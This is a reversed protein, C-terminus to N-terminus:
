GAYLPAVFNAYGNFPLTRRVDFSGLMRETAQSWRPHPMAPNVNSQFPYEHPALDNWFTRPQQEVLEIRVVSKASKYGYKWPTVIRIPAGHQKPLPHGYIGTAVFALENFAEEIRLAEYYPWPYWSQAKIGPMQQPDAFSIFRVYRANGKPEARELLRALAFGSWPVAMAWAEVCRHRYLREELPMSRLLDDLSLTMPKSVLGTIEISWPDPHFAGTHRWVDKESTFEYFNNYAGAITEETVPRDLAYRPNRAFPYPPAAKPITAEVGPPGKAPGCAALMTLALFGRRSFYVHEPTADREAIFDWPARLKILM